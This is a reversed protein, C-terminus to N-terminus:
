ASPAPPKKVADRSPDPILGLEIDIKAGMVALWRVDDRDFTMPPISKRSLVCLLVIAAQSALEGIKQARPSVRAILSHIHEELSITLNLSSDLTFGNAKEVSGFVGTRDGIKWTTDPKLGLRAEIDQPTLATSTIQLRVLTSERPAM